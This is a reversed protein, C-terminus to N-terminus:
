ITPTWEILGDAGEEIRQQREESSEKSSDPHLAQFYRGAMGSPVRQRMYEQLEALTVPTQERIQAWSGSRM